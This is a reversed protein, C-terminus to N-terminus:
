KKALRYRVTGSWLRDPVYGPPAGARPLAPDRGWGHPNGARDLWVGSPYHLSVAAVGEALQRPRNVGHTTPDRQADMADVGHGVADDDTDGWTMLRDDTTIAACSYVAGVVHRYGDGVSVPEMVPAPNPFSMPEDGTGLLNGNSQEPGRPSGVAWLRGADDLIALSFGTAALEVARRRRGDVEPLDLWTVEGPVGPYGHLDYSGGVWVRGDVLGAAFSLGCTIATTRPVQLWMRELGPQGATWHSMWGAEDITLFNPLSSHRFYTSEAGLPQSAIAVSPGVTSVFPPVSPLAAAEGGAPDPGEWTLAGGRRVLLTPETTDTPDAPNGVHMTAIDDVDADWGSPLRTVRRPLALNARWARSVRRARVGLVFPLRGLVNCLTDVTEM